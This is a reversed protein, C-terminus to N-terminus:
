KTVPIIEEFVRIGPISTDFGKEKVVQSIKARNPEKIIYEEPVEDINVVEWSIRTRVSLSSSSLSERAIAKASVTQALEKLNQATDLKGRGEMRQAQTLLKKREAEALKRAEEAKKEMYGRILTDLRDLADKVPRLYKERTSKV